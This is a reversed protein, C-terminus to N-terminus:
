CKIPQVASCSLLTANLGAVYNWKGYYNRVENTMKTTEDSVLWRLHQLRERGTNLTNGTMIIILIFVETTKPQRKSSKDKPIKRRM